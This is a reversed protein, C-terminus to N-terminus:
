HPLLANFEAVAKIHDTIVQGVKSKDYCEWYLAMSCEKYLIADCKKNIRHLKLSRRNIKRIAAAFANMYNIKAVVM